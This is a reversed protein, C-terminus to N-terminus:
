LAPKMQGYIEPPVMAPIHATYTFKLGGCFLLHKVLQLPRANGLPNATRDVANLIDSPTAAKLISDVVQRHTITNNNRDIIEATTLPGICSSFIRAETEGLARVAQNRTPQSYKDQNTIQALVGFNQLKGSSVAAWDDGTKELLIVYMSAIRVPVKTTVKNGSFGIYTVPGYVPKYYKELLRISHMVEHDTEPPHYIYIRKQIISALHHSHPASYAGTEFWEKMKPSVIGYFGMLRSWAQTFRPDNTEQLKAIESRLRNESTVEDLQSYKDLGLTILIEKRLDRASGNYHLEYLRGLNMRNVTANPDMVIDARNGHEDVPMEEPSAIHCIVGKGGVTDSIKFGITPVTRYEIIFEIRWDDLPVHRHLKTVREAPEKANDNKKDKVSSIVSYAEVILRHFERSLQLKDKGREKIFRENEDLISQYYRRRADDYAQTQVEMGVPTLPLASEVDHMVKVSIVKGGGGAAYIMQDFIPDVNMTSFRSQESPAFQEDYSRLAMLIGDPRIIDGIEPHPKYKDVTGYLNLPFRKNGYQVIRTEYTNFAFKELADRSVMIGDESVSPHTMFAVNMEAGYKYSGDAGVSPSDLLVTDKKIFSGVRLKRMAETPKYHFGFYPHYTFYEVLNLCGIEKTDNDEYIILSEPNHSPGSGGVTRPYLQIIKIIQADVPMKISFTYKGYEREMGTQIGRETSGEIVLSQGIHSSFMQKRSASNNGDFPSLGLVNLLERNLENKEYPPNYFEQDYHLANM